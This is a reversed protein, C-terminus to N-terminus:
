VSGVVSAFSALIVGGPPEWSTVYSCGWSVVHRLVLASLLVPLMVAVPLRRLVEAVNMFMLLLFVRGLTLRTM